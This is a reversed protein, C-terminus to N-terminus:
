LALNTFNLSSEKHTIWSLISWKLVVKGQSWILFLITDLNPCNNTVNISIIAWPCPSLVKMWYKLSSQGLSRFKM